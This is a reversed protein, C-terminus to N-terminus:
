DSIHFQLYQLLQFVRKTSCVNQQLIKPKNQLKHEVNGHFMMSFVLEDFNSGFLIWSLLYFTLGSNILSLLDMFDGVNQYIKSHFEGVFTGTAITLLGQPLETILFVSLVALLM